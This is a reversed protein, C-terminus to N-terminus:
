EAPSMGPKECDRHRHTVMATHLDTITQSGRRTCLFPFVGHAFCSFSALFMKGGFSFASGMHQVYTEGVSQPHETFLQKMTRYGKKIRINM